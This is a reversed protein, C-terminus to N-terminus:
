SESKKLKCNDFHYREMNRKGGTLNCHPCTVRPDRYGTNSKSGATQGVLEGTLLRPDNEYVRVRNGDKDKMMKFGTQCSVADGSLVRPDNTALRRIEGSADRYTTTGKNYSKGVCSHVLEGSLVRPDDKDVQQCKGEKDRATIKGNNKTTGNSASILEGSLYRPDDRMVTFRNGSSDKVTVKNKMFSRFRGTTWNPDTNSIWILQEKDDYVLVKNSSDFQANGNRKNLFKPDNQADLRVLVKTEWEACALATNFIRRIEIIDPDGHEQAFMEVYKSSTPYTVWLDSPHCNHATRRGYYWTNLHSWGILYTYPTRDGFTHTYISM